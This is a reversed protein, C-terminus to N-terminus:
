ELLGYRLALVALDVVKHVGLKRMLRSKHNDVTKVALRMQEACQRVSLGRALWLLVDLERPSIRDLLALKGSPRFKPGRPTEVVHERAGACFYRGGSAAVRIADLVQEPSAHKTLYGAARVGLAMRVHLERVADDLFILRAKPCATQVKRPVDTLFAGGIRPSILVVTPSFRSALAVAEKPGTAGAVEELGGVSRFLQVVAVCFLTQEDVVLLRIPGTLTDAKEAKTPRTM